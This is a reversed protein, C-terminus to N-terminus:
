CSLFKFLSEEHFKITIKPLVPCCSGSNGDLLKCATSGNTPLVQDYWLSCDEAQRCDITLILSDNGYFSCSHAGSESTSKWDDRGSYCLYKKVINNPNLNMKDIAISKFVLKLNLDGPFSVAFPRAKM